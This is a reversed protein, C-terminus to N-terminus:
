FSYRAQFVVEDNEGFQGLLSARPGGIALYGVRVRLDDRVAYSVRPFLFWAGREIAYTARTELELRDALYRKRLTAAVRTEPDAILLDPAPDLIVIQNLQLLPQWGNVLYDAGVGWEVSDLSPFLDGLPVRVRRGPMNLQRLLPRIPLETAQEVLDGARRLYPRDIFHAAEARVTLGGLV